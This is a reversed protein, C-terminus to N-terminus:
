GIVETYYGHGNDILVYGLRSILEDYDAIRADYEDRDWHGETYARWANNAMIRIKDVTYNM